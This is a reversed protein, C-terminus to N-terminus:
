TLSSFMDEVKQSENQVRVLFALMTNWFQATEKDSCKISTATDSGEMLFFFISTIQTGSSIALCNSNKNFYISRPHNHSKVQLTKQM